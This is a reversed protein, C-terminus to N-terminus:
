TCDRGQAACMARLQANGRAMTVREEEWWACFDDLQTKLLNKQEPDTESRIQKKMKEVRAHIKREINACQEAFWHSFPLYVDAGMENLGPHVKRATGEASPRDTIEEAETSSHTYPLYIRPMLLSSMRQRFLQIEKDEAKAPSTDSVRHSTSRQPVVRLCM